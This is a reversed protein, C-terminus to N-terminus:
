ENKDLKKVIDLIADTTDLEMFFEVGNSRNVCGYPRKLPELIAKVISLGVGNGGYDRTRAKDVKYFKEWIKSKIEQPIPKGTNFVGIRVRNNEKRKFTVKVIKNSDVHNLANTIFNRIVTEMKSADTWVYIPGFENDIQFNIEKQEILIKYSDTINRIFEVIDFQEIHFEQKGFELETLMLLNKVLKNMRNSEDIIVDCYFEKDDTSADNIGMKLGEAYGMILAIPTKLEHSVNSIFEKRMDDMEERKVIDRKLETNKEKLKNIVNEICKSMYNVSHGLENIERYSNSKYKVDFKMDSMKRTLISLDKIPKTFKIAILYAIIMSIFACILGILMVFETSTKSVNKIDDYNSMIIFSVKNDINGWMEIWTTNSGSDLDDKVIQIQVDEIKKEITMNSPMKNQQYDSLKNIMYYYNQAGSGFSFYSGQKGYYKVAISCNNNYSIERILSDLKPLKAISDLDSNKVLEKMQYYSKEYYDKTKHIYYKDLFLWNIIAMFCVLFLIITFMLLSLKSRISMSGSNGSSAGKIM